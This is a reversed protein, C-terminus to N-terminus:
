NLSEYVNSYYFDLRMFTPRNPAFTDTLSITDGKVMSLDYEYERWINNSKEAYGSGGVANTLIPPLNSSSALVGPNLEMNDSNGYNDNTVIIMQGIFNEKFEILQTDQDVEVQLKGKSVQESGLTKGEFDGSLTFFRYLLPEKQTKSVSQQISFEIDYEFWIEGVNTTVETDTAAWVVYFPDYLLLSDSQGNRVYYHKFQMIDSIGYSVGFNQWIASRKAYQYTLLEQKSDPLSDSINFEPAIMVFGPVLTSQSTEFVVRFKNIKYKQFSPAIGSLWPFSEPLAPNIEIKHPTFETSPVVETIYERHTVRFTNGKFGGRPPLNQKTKLNSVSPGNSNSNERKKNSSKKNTKKGKQPKSTPNKKM